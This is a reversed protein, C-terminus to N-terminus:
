EMASELYDIVEGLYTVADDLNSIANEMAEGRESEQLSEPLNDFSEEEEQKLDELHNLNDQLANIILQIQKRRTNNM